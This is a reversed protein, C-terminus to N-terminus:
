RVVLLFHGVPVGLVGLVVLLQEVVLVVVVV